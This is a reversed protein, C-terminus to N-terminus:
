QLETPLIRHRIYYRYSRKCTRRKSSYEQNRKYNKYLQRCLAKLKEPDDPLSESDSDDDSSSETDSDEVKPAFQFNEPIDIPHQEKREKCNRKQHRGINNKRTFKKNCGPCSYM